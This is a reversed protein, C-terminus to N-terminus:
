PLRLVDILANTKPKNIETTAAPEALVASSVTVM